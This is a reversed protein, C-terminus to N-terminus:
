LRVPAMATLMIALVRVARQLCVHLADICWSDEPQTEGCKNIRDCSADVTTISAVVKIIMYDAEHREPLVAPTSDP